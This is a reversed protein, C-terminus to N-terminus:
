KRKVIIGVTFNLSPPLWRFPIGKKELINFYVSLQQILVDYDFGKHTTDKRAVKNLNGTLAHWVERGSYSQGATKFLKKSFYKLFFVIGKENPVSFFGYEGTAAAMKEIYETLYKGPLHELTEMALVYDYVENSTNFNAPSTSKIFNYQPFAKYNDVAEDFGGEWDADYGTYKEPKFPIYQISRGDNCGIELVSGKTVGRKEFSDRLWNFRANHFFGRIGPSFLRENYTKNEIERHQAM